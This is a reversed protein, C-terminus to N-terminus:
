FWHSDYNFYIINERTSNAFVAQGQSAKGWAKAVEILTLRSVM